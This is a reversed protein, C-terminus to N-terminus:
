FPNFLWTDSMVHNRWTTYVLRLPYAYYLVYKPRALRPKSPMIHGPWKEGKGGKWVAVLKKPESCCCIHTMHKPGRRQVRCHWKKMFLKCLLSVLKQVRVACYVLFYLTCSFGSGKKTEHHIPSMNDYPMKKLLIVLDTKTMVNGACSLKLCLEIGKRSLLSRSYRINSAHRKNGFVVFLLIVQIRAPFYRVNKANRLYSHPSSM